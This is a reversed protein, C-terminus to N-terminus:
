VEYSNFQNRVPVVHSATTVSYRVKLNSLASACKEGAAPNNSQRGWPGLRNAILSSIKLLFIVFYLVLKGVEGDVPIKAGFSEGTFVTGDELM